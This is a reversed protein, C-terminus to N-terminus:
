KKQRSFKRDDSQSQGEDSRAYYLNLIAVPLAELTSVTARSISVDCFEVKAPVTVAALPVNEFRVSVKKGTAPM